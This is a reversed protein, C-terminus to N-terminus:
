QDIEEDALCAPEAFQYRRDLSGDTKIHFAHDALWQEDTPVAANPHYNAYRAANQANEITHRAIFTQLVQAQTAPFLTNGLVLRHTM